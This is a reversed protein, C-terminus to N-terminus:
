CIAVFVPISSAPKSTRPCIRNTRVPRSGSRVTVKVDSRRSAARVVVVPHAAVAIAVPVGVTTARIAVPVARRAAVVRDAPVVVTRVPSGAGTTVLPVAEIIVLPVAEASPDVDTTV